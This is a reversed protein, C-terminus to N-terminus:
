VNADLYMSKVYDFIKKEGMTAELLQEESSKTALRV